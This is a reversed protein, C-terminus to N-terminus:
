FVPNEWIKQYRALLPRIPSFPNEPCGRLWNVDDSAASRFGFIVDKQGIVDALLSVYGAFFRFHEFLQLRGVLLPIFLHHRGLPDALIAPIRFDAPFALGTSGAGTRRCFLCPTPYFFHEPRRIFVAVAFERPIFKGAGSNKGSGVAVGVAEYGWLFQPFIKGASM